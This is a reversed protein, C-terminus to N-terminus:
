GRVGEYAITTDMEWEKREGQSEDGNSCGHRDLGGGEEIM